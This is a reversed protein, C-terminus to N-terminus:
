LLNNSVIKVLTHQLYTAIVKFRGKNYTKHHSSYQWILGFLFLDGFRKCAVLMKTQQIKSQVYWVGIEFSIGTAISSKIPFINSVMFTFLIYNKQLLGNRCLFCGLFLLQVEKSFIQVWQPAHPMLASWHFLMDNM